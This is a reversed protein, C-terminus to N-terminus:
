REPEQYDEDNWEDDVAEGGPAQYIIEPQGAQEDSELEMSMQGVKQLQETTPFLNLLETNNLNLEAAPSKPPDQGNTNSYHSTNHPTSQAPYVALNAPSASPPPPSSLIQTLDALFDIKPKPAPRPPTDLCILNDEVVVAKVQAPPHGPPKVAPRTTNPPRNNLMNNMNMKTPTNSARAQFQERESDHRKREKEVLQKLRSRQEDM